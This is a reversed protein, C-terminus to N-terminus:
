NVMNPVSEVTLPTRFRCPLTPSKSVNTAVPCAKSYENIGAGPANASNPRAPIAPRRRLFYSSLCHNAKKYRASMNTRGENGGNSFLLPPKRKNWSKFRILPNMQRNEVLDFTRYYCPGGLTKVGLFQVVSVTRMQCSVCKASPNGERRPSGYHSRQLCSAKM